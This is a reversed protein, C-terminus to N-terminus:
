SKQKPKTAYSKGDFLDLYRFALTLTHFVFPHMNGYCRESYNIPSIWWFLAGEFKAKGFVIPFKLIYVRKRDMRYYTGMSHTTANAAYVLCKAAILNYAGSTVLALSQPLLLNVFSDNLYLWHLIMMFMITYYVSYVFRLLAIWTVFM